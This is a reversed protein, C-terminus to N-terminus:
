ALILPKLLTTTPFCMDVEQSSRPEMASAITCSGLSVKPEAYAWRANFATECTPVLNTIVLSGIRGNLDRWLGRRRREILM